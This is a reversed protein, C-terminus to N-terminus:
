PWNKGLVGYKSVIIANKPFFDIIMFISDGQNKLCCLYERQYDYQLLRRLEREDSLPAPKPSPAVTGVEAAAAGAVRSFVLCSDTHFISCVEVRPHVKMQGCSWDNLVLRLPPANSPAVATMWCLTVTAVASSLRLAVTLRLLLGAAPLFQGSNSFDLCTPGM